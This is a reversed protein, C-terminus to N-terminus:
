SNSSRHYTNLPYGDGRGALGHAPGEPGPMRASPKHHTPICRNAKQPLRRCQINDHVCTCTYVRAGRSSLM